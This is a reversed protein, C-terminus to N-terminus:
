SGGRRWLALWRRRPFIPWGPRSAMVCAAIIAAAGVATSATPVESFWAYAFITAWLLNTYELPALRGAPARAFGWAMLLSGTTAMCGILGYRLWEGAEVDRWFFVAAPALIAVGMVQQTFVLAAPREAVSHKRLLVVGLAYAAASGLITITGAVTLTGESGAGGAVVVVVGVLGIAVAALARPEIPEGLIPRALFVMFLPATFALTVVELLPMHTLSYFFLGAAALMVVTRLLNAKLTARSIRHPRTALFPVSATLAGFAYRLFVIQVTPVDPGFSKITADMLSLVAIAAAVALVPRASTESPASM